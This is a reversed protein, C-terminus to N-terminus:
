QLTKLLSHAQFVLQPFALKPSPNLLLDPSASSPNPAAQAQAMEELDMHYGLPLHLASVNWIQHPSSSPSQPM